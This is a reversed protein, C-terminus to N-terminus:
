LKSILGVLVCLYVIVGYVLGQLVWGEWEAAM